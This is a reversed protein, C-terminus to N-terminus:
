SSHNTVLSRTSSPRTWPTIAISRLDPFISAIVARATMRHVPPQPLTNGKVVLAAILLPSPMASAYRAPAGRLSMSNM